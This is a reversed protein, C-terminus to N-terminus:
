HTACVRVHCHSTQTPPSTPSCTAAPSAPPLTSWSIEQAYLRAFTLQHHNSRHTHLPHCSAIRVRTSPAAAPTSFPPWAASARHYLRPAFPSTLQLPLHTPLCPLVIRPTVLTFFEDTTPGIGDDITRISKSRAVGAFFYNKEKTQGLGAACAIVPVATEAAVYQRFVATRKKRALCIM